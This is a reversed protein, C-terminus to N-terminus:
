LFFCPSYVKQNKTERQICKLKNKYSKLCLNEITHASTHTYLYLMYIITITHKSHHWFATKYIHSYKKTQRFYRPLSFSFGRFNVTIQKNLLLKKQSFWWQKKFHFDIERNPQPKHTHTQNHSTFSISFSDCANVTSQSNWKRTGERYELLFNSFM